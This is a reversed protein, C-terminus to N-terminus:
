RLALKLHVTAATVDAKSGRVLFVRGPDINTGDLLVAQIAQARTSALQELDDASPTTQQHVLADLQAIDLSADRIGSGLAALLVAKHQEPSENLRAWLTSDDGDGLRERARMLVIEQHRQSALATADVPTVVIPVELSVGPRAAMAHALTTLRSRATDDVRASGSAFDITSIEEGAGFLAGLTAFPSMVIKSFLNGIVKKTLRGVNFNPDSFTGTLPVDLDINGDRDKLLAVVLSLPIGLGPEGEVRAGLEFQKLRVHHTADVHHNAVRYNLDATAKGKRIQYGAYRGSYPSLGTLELNEFHVHVDAAIPDGILNADGDISAPAYRDVHGTFAIHARTTPDSSLGDIQGQLDAISTEFAMGQSEDALFLRGNKVRTTDITLALPTRSSGVKPQPILSSINSHGDQGFRVDAYPGDADVAHMHISLQPWHVDVGEAQMHDIGILDREHSLDMTRVEDLGANGVYHFNDGDYTAQGSGSMFGSKIRLAILPQLYASLDTVSLRSATVALEASHGDTGIVGNAEVQGSTGVTSSVSVQRRQDKDPGVQVNLNSLRTHAPQQHTRDEFDLAGDTIGITGLRVTFPSPSSHSQVSSWGLSKHLLRAQPASLHIGDVSVVQTARDFTLASVTWSPISLTIDADPSLAINTDSGAVRDVRVSLAAPKGTVWRVAGDVDVRGKIAPVLAAWEPGLRALDMQSLHITSTLGMPELVWTSDITAAEGRDSVFSASWASSPDATSFNHVSLKAENLHLQAGAGAAPDQVVLDHAIVTGQQIAVYPWPANPDAVPILELLEVSGDARRVAKLRDIVVDISNISLKRQVLTRWNLDLRMRAISLDPEHSGNMFQLPTIEVTLTFPNSRIRGIEVTHGHQLAYAILNQKLLAQVGFTGASGYLAALVGAALASRRLIVSV